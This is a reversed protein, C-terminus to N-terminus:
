DDDFTLSNQGTDEHDDKEKLKPTEASATKSSKKQSLKSRERIEDVDDLYGSLDIFTYCCPKCLPVRPKQDSM